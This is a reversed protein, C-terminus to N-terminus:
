RVWSGKTLKKKEMEAAWSHGPLALLRSEHTGPSPCHWVVCLSVSPEGKVTRAGRWSALPLFYVPVEWASGLGCRAGRRGAHTWSMAWAMRAPGPCNTLVTVCPILTCRKTGGATQAGLNQGRHGRAPCARLAAPPPDRPAGETRERRWCPSVSGLARRALRPSGSAGARRPSGELPGLSERAAPVTLSPVSPAWLPRWPCWAAVCWRRSQGAPGAGSGGEVLSPRLRWRGVDRRGGLHRLHRLHVVHSPFTVGRLRRDGGPCPSDRGWRGGAAPLPPAGPARRARAPAPLGHGPRPFLLSSGGGPEEPQPCGPRWLPSSLEAGRHGCTGPRHPAGPGSRGASGQPPGAEGPSGQAGSRLSRGWTGPARRRGRRRRKGAKGQPCRKGAFITEQCPWCNADHSM